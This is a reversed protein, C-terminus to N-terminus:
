TILVEIISGPRAKGHTKIPAPKMIAQRCAYTDVGVTSIHRYDILM